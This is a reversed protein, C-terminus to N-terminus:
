DRQRWVGRASQLRCQARQRALKVGKGGCAGHLNCCRLAADAPAFRGKGGCAGHLNCCRQAERDTPTDTKAEVRGTCIAVRLLCHLLCALLFKAEVRGTCIAVMMWCAMSPLSFKAEVRGTCIAVVTNVTIARHLHKAEVRGTCIAVNILLSHHHNHSKAEVRGTCIAVGAHNDHLVQGQRQRWVGRASQLASLIREFM